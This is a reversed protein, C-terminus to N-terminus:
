PRNHTRLPLARVIRVRTRAKKHADGRCFHATDHTGQVVARVRPRRVHKQAGLVAVARDLVDLHRLVPFVDRAVYLAKCPHPWAWRGTTGLRDIQCACIRAIAAHRRDFGLVSPADATVTVGSVACHV